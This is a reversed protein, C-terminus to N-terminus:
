PYKQSFTKRNRAQEKPTAWRCNGPTYNRDNDRRDLTRGTPREGMDALFAVFSDRWTECVKIGRGGYRHWSHYTPRTCRYIMGRWSQYTPSGNGAAHGHREPKNLNDLSDGIWADEYEQSTVKDDMMAFAVSRKKSNISKIHESEDIVAMIDGKTIKQKNLSVHLEFPHGCNLCDCQAATDPEFDTCENM